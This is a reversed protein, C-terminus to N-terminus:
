DYRLTITKGDYGTHSNPFIDAASKIFAGPETLAPSFHTLWLEKVRGKKALNAAESFLMHTYKLAQPKKDEEGYLGECIFVDAEKIFDVLAAVPRTDTTYNVKFGKRPEGMVMSPDITMGEYTVTEGKQLLSYLKVPIKLNRAKEINFKGPRETTFCYSLCTTRHHVELSNIKMDKIQINHSNSEYLEIEFPLNKAIVRLGNVVYKLGAPGMIAVPEARYSNAMAHLLGPLGAVHDAHFHTLCIIDIGKFGLGQKQISVQTGEGCDILIGTNKFRLMASALFRNPLPMMGGTGTLSIDLM